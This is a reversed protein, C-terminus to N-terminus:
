TVTPWCTVFPWSSAVSSGVEARSLRSWASFFRVDASSWSVAASFPDEDEDLLELEVVVVVLRVPSEDDLSNTDYVVLLGLLFVGAGVVVVVVGVVVVVVVGVVVVVVVVVGGVVVVVGVVVAGAVVGDVVDVVGPALEAAPLAPLPDPPEVLV